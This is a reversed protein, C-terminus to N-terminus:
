TTVGPDWSRTGADRERLFDAEGDDAQTAAERAPHRM